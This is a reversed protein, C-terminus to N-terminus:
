HSIGLSTLTLHTLTGSPKIGNLVQFLCIASKTKLEIKGDIPGNYYGLNAMQSQVSCITNYSLNVLAYDPENKEIISPIISYIKTNISPTTYVNSRRNYYRDLYKTPDGTTIEGTNPNYNGPYSFNNYPIGDPDTRYHPQVYTGDKRYYGKVYVLANM